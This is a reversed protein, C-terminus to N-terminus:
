FTKRKNIHYKNHGKKDRLYRRNKRIPVLYKIILEEFEDMLKNKKKEDSELMIFIFYDKLFGVAMNQNIKMEYKYKEQEIEEEAVNIFSQVINYVLIGSLIEQRVISSKGSSINGIKLNEKLQHYTTEVGWRLNYLEKMEEFSFDLNTLLIEEEGTSLPIKIARVKIMKDRLLDDYLERNINKYYSARSSGIGKGIYIIEDETEMEELEKKYRKSDIRQIFKYDNKLNTHIEDLSTYGRDKISIIKYGKFKNEMNKRHNKYLDYDSTRNKAIETDMIYKNLLDVIVSVKARPTQITKKSGSTFRGFNDKSAKTNPIEIESGDAATLLYGKYTKIEERCEEYYVELLGENLHNFITPNLKERQKLMGPTSINEYGSIKFFNYEEMKTSLGKRNLNYLILENVGIKRKRTFDTANMKVLERPLESNIQNRIFNLGKQNSKM